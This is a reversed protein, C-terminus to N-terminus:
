IMTCTEVRETEDRVAFKSSAMRATGSTHLQRCCCVRAGSVRRLLSLSSRLMMITVVVLRTGVGRESFPHPCSVLGREVVLNLRTGVGRGSPTHASVLCSESSHDLWM